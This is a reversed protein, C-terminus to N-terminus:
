LIEVLAVSIGVRVSILSAALAMAVWVFAVWYVNVAGGERRHKTGTVGEVLSRERTSAMLGSPRNLSRAEDRRARPSSLPGIPGYPPGILERRDTAWLGVTTPTAAALKKESRPCSIAVATRGPNRVLRP